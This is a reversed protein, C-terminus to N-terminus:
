SFTCDVCRPPSVRSLVKMESDTPCLVDLWWTNAEADQDTRMAAGRARTDGMSIGSPRLGNVEPPTAQGNGDSADLSTRSSEHPPGMFLDEFSQGEAPLEALSRAHITNPLSNSYFSFRYPKEKESGTSAGGAGTDSRSSGQSQHRMSGFTPRGGHGLLPTKVDAKGMMGGSGEFRALKRQYRGTPASESLKRQRGALMGRRRPQGSEPSFQVNGGTAHDFAGAALNGNEAYQPKSDRGYENSAFEDIAAFDFPFPFNPLVGPLGRPPACDVPVKGQAEEAVQAVEQESDRLQLHPFCVDEEAFNANSPCRSLDHGSIQHRTPSDERPSPFDELLHAEPVFTQRTPSSLQVTTPSVGAPSESLPQSADVDRGLGGTRHRDGSHRRGGFAQPASVSLSHPQNRHDILAPQSEVSTDSINGRTHRYFIQAAVPPSRSPSSSAAPDSLFLADQEAQVEDATSSRRSM